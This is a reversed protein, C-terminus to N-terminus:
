ASDIDSPQDLARGAARDIYWHLEGETPRILQAPYRPRSGGDALVRALMESKEAGSVLFVICAARNFVPCTLTLRHADLKEIWNAVVLRRTETLAATGPFLSATHGDSGMGLFVLDFRPLNEGALRFVRHLTAEYEAAARDPPTHEAPMRHVNEHRIPVRSLLLRDAMGFNNDPHEPPVTREDGWFFRIQPWPIRSRLPEAALLEFLRKPTSGGSLAVSFSDGAETRTLARRSFEDAAGRALAEGDEFIHVTPAGGDM